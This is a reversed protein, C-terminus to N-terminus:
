DLIFGAETLIADMPVDEPSQPLRPVIQLQFALGLFLAKSEPLFRDYYGMGYGLRGGTKDFAVGPVIMLDIAKLDIPKRTEPRPERLEFEGTELQEFSSLISQGLRRSQPLRFPVVVTKNMQWCDSVIARTQVEDPQNLFIHVVQAKQFPPWQKLHAQIQQSADERESLPWQRRRILIDRRISAKDLREKFAM